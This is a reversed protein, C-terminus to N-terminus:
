VNGYARSNIILSNKVNSHGVISIQTLKTEGILNKVHHFARRYINSSNNAIYWHGVISDYTLKKIIIWFFTGPLKKGFSDLFNGAIKNLFCLFLDQCEEKFVTLSFNGAIKKLFWLITGLNKWFWGFSLERCKKKLFGGM